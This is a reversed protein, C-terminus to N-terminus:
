ISRVPPNRGADASGRHLGPHRYVYALGLLGVQALAGPALAPTAGRLVEWFLALGSLGRGRELEFEMNGMVHFYVGLAGMALFLSMVVRFARLRGPTPRQALALAILLGGLLGLMPLWQRWSEYHELLILEALLGAMGLIMVWLLLSRLSRGGTDDGGRAAFDSSREM